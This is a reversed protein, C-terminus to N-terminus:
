GQIPIGRHRGGLSPATGIAVRGGVVGATPVVEGMEGSPFKAGVVAAPRKVFPCALSGLLDAAIGFVNELAGLGGIERDRLRGLNSNAMLRLAALASRTVTGGDSSTVASAIILYCHWKSCHM